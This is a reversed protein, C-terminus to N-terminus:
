RKKNRRVTPKMSIHRFVTAEMQIIVHIIILYEFACQIWLSNETAKKNFYFQPPKRDSIHSYVTFYM